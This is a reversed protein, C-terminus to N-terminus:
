GFSHGEVKLFGTVLAEVNYPKTRDISEVTYAAKDDEWHDGLAIQADVAGVLQYQFKRALGRDTQSDDSGDFRMTNFLVFMQPARPTGDSYDNGGSPKATAVIPILTIQQGRLALVDAILQRPDAQLAFTMWGFNDGTLPHDLDWNRAGMVLYKRDQYTTRDGVQIGTGRPVFLTGTQTFSTIDETEIGEFSPGPAPDSLEVFAPLDGLSTYADGFPDQPREFPLTPALAPDLILDSM